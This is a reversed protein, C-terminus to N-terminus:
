KIETKKLKLLEKSAKRDTFTIFNNIGSNM